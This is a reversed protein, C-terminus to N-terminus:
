RQLYHDLARKKGAELSKTFGLENNKGGTIESVRFRGRMAVVSYRISDEGAGVSSYKM